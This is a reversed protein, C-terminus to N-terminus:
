EDFIVNPSISLAAYNIQVKHCLNLSIAKNKKNSKAHNIHDLRSQLQNLNDLVTHHNHRAGILSTLYQQNKM